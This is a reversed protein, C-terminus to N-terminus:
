LFTLNHLPMERPRGRDPTGNLRHEDAPHGGSRGEQDGSRDRSALTGLLKGVSIRRTDTASGARVRITGRHM